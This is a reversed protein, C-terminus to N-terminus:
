HEATRHELSLRRTACRDVVFHFFGWFLKYGMSFLRFLEESVHHRSGIPLYGFASAARPDRTDRM